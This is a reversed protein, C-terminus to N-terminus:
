PPDGRVFASWARDLAESSSSLSSVCCRALAKRLNGAFISDAQITARLHRLGGGGPKNHKLIDLLRAVKNPRHSARFPLLSAISDAPECCRELLLRAVAVQRLAPAHDDLPARALPLDWERGDPTELSPLFSAIIRDDDDCAPGPADVPVGLSVFPGALRLIWAGDLATAARVVLRDDYDGASLDTYAIWEPLDRRSRSYLASGASLYAFREGTPPSLLEYACERDYRTPKKEESPKRRQRRRRELYDEVAAPDARRALRDLYAAALAKALRLDQAPTPADVALLGGGFRRAATRAVARRAKDARELAAADLGNSECWATAGVGGGGGGGGAERAYALLASLRSHADGLPHRFRPPPPAIKNGFPSKESVAAALAACLARDKPAAAHLAASSRLGVPLTALARGLRSLKATPLKLAGVRALSLEADRLAARPPPTIFPFTGLDVVGLAKANLVLDELPLVAVDPPDVDPCVDALVAPTYLRYVRGPGDRGARGARQQASAKSIWGVELVLAGGGGSAVRRKVRGADVVCSIGPITVSTEAVNTAVVIKRIGEPVAAFAVEQQALSLSAHLAVVVVATTSYTARLRSALTEVERKGTLFVLIGGPPETEHLRRTQESAAAVYDDLRTERAFHIAVPHQRGPIELTRPRAGRWLGEHSVVDELGSASMIVLKLPAIGNTERRLPVARSLLGLLVDTNLSREHAEDVIVAEYDRLLLDRRMEQLLVGDTELVIKTVEGVGGEEFRTRYGVISAGGGPRPIVAGLELAVRRATTVAAVRRPQTAVVRGYGAEYLFQPVQTSKGSGTEGSIVVVDEQSGIAEVIEQEMGCAPLEMRAAQIEASRAVRRAKTKPAEVPAAHTTPSRTSPLALPKPVYKKKGDNKWGCDQAPQAAEEERDGGGGGGGGNRTAAAAITTKLQELEKMVLEAASRPPRDKEAPQDDLWLDGPAVSELSSTSTRVDCFGDAFSLSVVGRVVTGDWMRALVRAGEKARKGLELTSPKGPPLVVARPSAANELVGKRPPSPPPPPPTSSRQKAGSPVGSSSRSSARKPTAELMRKAAAPPEEQSVRKTGLSRKYLADRERDDLGIGSRERLLAARARRAATSSHTEAAVSARLVELEEASAATKRLEEFLGEREAFKAAKERAKAVRKKKQSGMKKKKAEKPPVSFTEESCPTAGAELRRRKENEERSAKKRDRQRKGM